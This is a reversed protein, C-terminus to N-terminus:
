VEIVSVIGWLYGAKSGFGSLLWEHAAFFEVGCLPALPGATISVWQILEDIRRNLWGCLRGAQL